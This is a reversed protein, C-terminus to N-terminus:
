EAPNFLRGWRIKSLFKKHKDISLWIFKPRGVIHDDPVFGWMRSDASDHRNDGIMYYYGMKFTYTKAAEGNIYITSDVIKLDNNEYVQIIREYLCINDMNIDITKGKEPIYLPGFYDLNWKYKPDHPFIDYDYTGEDALKPEVSVVNPFAKIKQVNKDTLFIEYSSPGTRQADEPYIDMKELLKPNIRAGNTKILYKFQIGEFHKQPKGNIYIEGNILRLTDGPIAVCRKIYNDRRDVPRIAINFQPNKWIYERAIKYYEEDSKLARGYNIDNFKFNKAFDRVIRYYSAATNELIVTDGAPFNFVVIDDNEITDLGALRKYPLKIWEVYSKTKIVPMTNQAFPFSIPTQPVRPGFSVKSVFLHDGILLSKEMSGTPIKYNQFLFINILTVAIVAFILADLWEVFTSNKKKRSKWFAWNVKRSIYIDYIIPIGLFFWYNQLWIVVLVYTILALSFKFYRNKLFEQIKKLGSKVTNKEM